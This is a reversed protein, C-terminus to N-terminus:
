AAILELQANGGAVCDKFVLRNPKNPDWDLCKNKTAIKIREGDFQFQQLEKVVSDCRRNRPYYWMIATLCYYGPGQQKLQQKKSDYIFTAGSTSCDKDGFYNQDSTNDPGICMNNSLIKVRFPSGDLINLGAETPSETPQHTPFPTPKNTHLKTTGDAPPIMQRSANTGTLSQHMEAIVEHTYSQVLGYHGIHIKNTSANKEFVIAYHKYAQDNSFIFNNEESRGAFTLSADKGSDYLKIWSGEGTESNYDKSGQLIIQVPDRFVM